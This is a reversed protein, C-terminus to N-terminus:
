GNGEGKTQWQYWQDPYEKVLKELERVYVDAMDEIPLRKVYVRYHDKHKLSAIFYVNRDLHKAFRFAGEPFLRKSGLFEYEKTRGNGRDGAILVVGGEEVISSGLFLERIAFGETPHVEIMMRKSHRDKFARFTATQSLSMFVHFKVDCEGYAALTEINGLHSSIVVAGRKQAVDDLFAFSDENEEFVVKPQGKGMSLVAIKDALSLAFNVMKKRSSSAKRAVPDFVWVVNAVVRAIFDFLGKGFFRYLLWALEMGLPTSARENKDAKPKLIAWAVIYSVPLGVAFATGFSRIIPFSVLCLAGFSVLSTLFSCTVSKLAGRFDSALFITYDLAMGVIMFSALVHFFNVSGHILQEFAFVSCVAFSSPMLILIVRLRYFVSLMVSLLAFSLLLLYAARKEHANILNVIMKRPAYLAVGETSSTINKEDEVTVQPVISMVLAPNNMFLFREAMRSPIDKIEKPMLVKPSSPNTFGISKFISAGHSQTFEKILEYNSMRKEFSPIFKSLCISTKFIEEEKKLVEELTAGNVVAMGASKDIGSLQAILREAEKLSESPNHLDEAGTHFISFISGFAAFSAIVLFIFGFAPSRELKIMWEPPEKPMRGQISFIECSLLIRSFVFSSFLGASLFFATQVLAPLGSFFLPLLSVITTLFSKVLNKKVEEGRGKAALIAHFSYDVALGVLTTGFVLSILHISDFFASVVTFGVLSSVALNILIACLSKFSSIVKLALGIIFVLSILSLLTIEKACKSSTELTHLSVGSISLKANDYAKNLSDCSLLIPNLVKPLEKIDFASAAPLSFSILVHYLGGAEACFVDGRLSWNGFKRPLSKVFRDVFGLLDDNNFRIVKYSSVLDRMVHSQLNGTLFMEKDKSSLFGGGAQSYFNIIENLPSRPSKFVLNEIQNTNLQSVFKEALGRADEFTKSSSVVQVRSSVANKIPVPLSLDNAGALRELSTEFRMDKVFFLVAASMIAAVVFLALRILPKM